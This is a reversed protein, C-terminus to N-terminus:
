LPEPLSRGARQAHARLAAETRLLVAEVVLADDLLGYQPTGDPIRDAGEFFYALAFAVDRRAPLQAEVGAGTEEFFRVFEELRAQLRPSDTIQAIRSRLTELRPLLQELHWDTVRKVGETVYEATSLRRQEPDALFRSLDDPASSSPDAPNRKTM